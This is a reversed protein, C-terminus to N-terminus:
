DMSLPNFLASELVTGYKRTCLRVFQEDNRPTKRWKPLDRQVKDLNVLELKKYHHKSHAFGILENTLHIGAKLLEELCRVPELLYKGQEGYASNKYESNVEIKEYEIKLGSSRLDLILPKVTSELNQIELRLEEKQRECFVSSNLRKNRSKIEREISALTSIFVESLVSDLYDAKWQQVGSNFALLSQRIFENSIRNTFDTIVSNKSYRHRASNDCQASHVIYEVTANKPSISLLLTVWLPVDLENFKLKIRGIRYSFTLKEGRKSVLSLNRFRQAKKLSLLFRESNTMQYQDSALHKFTKFDKVDFLDAFLQDAKRPRPARGGFTRTAAHGVFEPLLSLEEPSLEKCLASRAKYVAQTIATPESTTYKM